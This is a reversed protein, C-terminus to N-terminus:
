PLEPFIHRLTPERAGRVITGAQRQREEDDVRRRAEERRREEEAARREAAQAKLVSENEMDVMDQCAGKWNPNLILRQNHETQSLIRTWTNLLTSASTVTHSVKDMNGRACELSSIVGEIVENINRVGQLERQLSAEHAQEADYKSKGRQVTGIASETPKPVSKQSPKLARSPSAFLDEDDSDSLDLKRTAPTAMM